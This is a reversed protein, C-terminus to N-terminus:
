EVWPESFPDRREGHLVCQRATACLISKFCDDRLAARADDPPMRGERKCKASRRCQPDEHVGRWHSIGGAFQEVFEDNSQQGQAFAWQFCSYLHRVVHVALGFRVSDAHANHPLLGMGPWREGLCVMDYYLRAAITGEDPAYAHCALACASACTGMARVSMDAVLDVGYEAYVVRAIVRERGGKGCAARTQGYYDALTAKVGGLDADCLTKARECAALLNARSCQSTDLFACTRDSGDARDCIRCCYRGHTDIIHGSQQLCEVHFLRACEACEVM